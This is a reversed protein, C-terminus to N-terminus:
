SKGQMELLLQLYSRRESRNLGMEAAAALVAAKATVALDEPAVVELEAFQGVGEVDDLTMQM